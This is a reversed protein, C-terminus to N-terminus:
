ADDDDTDDDDEVTDDDDRPEDPEPDGPPSPDPSPEGEDDLRQDPPDGANIPGPSVPRAGDGDELDSLEIAPTSLSGESMWAVAFPPVVVVAAALLGLILSRKIMLTM